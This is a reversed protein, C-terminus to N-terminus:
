ENKLEELIEAALDNCEKRYVELEEPTMLVTRDIQEILDKYAEKGLQKNFTIIHVFTDGYIAYKLQNIRTNKWVLNEPAHFWGYGKGQALTSKYNGVAKQFTESFDVEYRRLAENLVNALFIYEEKFSKPQLSYDM